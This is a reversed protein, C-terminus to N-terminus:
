AAVSEAALMPYEDANVVLGARRSFDMRPPAFVDILRGPQDGINRSTHVVTPPIILVSPSGMELHQDERWCAMDPTWPYRLHHVYTGGIAISAQEYDAHSHPTLKSTDRAVMRPTMVNVMLNRSRFVRMNSGETVHEALRYNRLRYGAPPEPWAELPAVDAPHTEYAARNGAREALDGALSSFVRVVIGDGKPVVRSRGPPVITLSDAEAEIADDGAEITAGCDPLLVMYEDPNDSRKLAVGATVKSLVTVFNAGRTIWSEAGADLDTIAPEEYHLGATADRAPNTM